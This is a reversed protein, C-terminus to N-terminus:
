KRRRRRPNTKALKSRKSSSWGIGGYKWKRKVHRSRHLRSSGWPAPNRRRKGGGRKRFFVFWVAAVGLAAGGWFWPQSMDLALDGLVGPPASSGFMKKYAAARQAKPLSLITAMARAQLKQSQEKHDDSPDIVVVSTSPYNDWWGGWPGGGPGWGFGM